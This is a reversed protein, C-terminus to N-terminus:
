QRTHQLVMALVKAAQARNTTGLSRFSGDPFGNLYGAAVAAQVAAQAWADIEAKDTFTLNVSGTLKLARALLVAMQERTITQDPGFTTPTLGKVIGAQVAASVDPAYWEGAPVDGFPTSGTEGPKLGIALVLMRVFEARTVPQEPRFTGDPFGNVVGAKVLTQIDAYAWYSPSVDSFRFNAVAQGGSTVSISNAGSGTTPVTTGTVGNLVVGFFENSITNGTITTNAIPAAAPGAAAISIGEPATAGSDPDAQNGSITNNQIVNGSVNASPAHTHLVIGGMGNGEVTNNEVTNGTVTGAPTALVIGAAGNGISTNGIVTNDNVGQGTHSALTIGCDVQNNLVRNGSVTNGTTPGTEDTLYIGGDLNNQVTNNKVTSNTVGILHLAECDNQLSCPVSNTASFCGSPGNPGCAPPSPNSAAFSQDNEQIVSNEITVNSTSEVVIGAKDAKQVTLGDIVTGAAASGSIVIGNPQGTADIITNSASGGNSADSELHVAQSVTLPASLSYTGPEVLITGGAPAVSLAHAITAFASTPTTGSNSDSGSTSVYFTTAPSVTANSTDSGSSAAAITSGGGQALRVTVGQNPSGSADKVTVTVTAATTGDGPVSTPSATVTSQGADPTAAFASYPYFSVFGFVAVLVALVVALRERWGHAASM